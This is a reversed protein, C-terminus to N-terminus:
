SMSEKGTEWRRQDAVFQGPLWRVLESSPSGNTDVAWLVGNVQSWAVHTSTEFIHSEHHEDGVIKTHGDPMVCRLGSEHEIWCLKMTLAVVSRLVM